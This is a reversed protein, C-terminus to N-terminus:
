ALHEALVAQGAVPSILGAVSATVKVIGPTTATAPTPATSAVYASLTAPTVARNADAGAVAEALTAIEIIGPITESAVRTSKFTNM